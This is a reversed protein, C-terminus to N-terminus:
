KTKKEKNESIRKEIDEKMEWVVEFIKKISESWKWMKKLMERSAEDTMHVSLIDIDNNWWM